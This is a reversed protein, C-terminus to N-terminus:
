MSFTFCGSFPLGDYVDVDTVQKTALVPAFTAQQVLLGTEPAESASLAPNSGAVRRKSSYAIELRAGEAV